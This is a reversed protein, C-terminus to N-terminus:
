SSRSQAASLIGAVVELEDANLQELDLSHQHQLPGGGPASVEIAKRKAHLFSAVEAACHVKTGLSAEVLLPKTKKKDLFLPGFAGMAQTKVDGWYVKAMFVVPDDRTTNMGLAQLEERLELTKRNPTGAKRGSGPTKKQTGPKPGRKAM